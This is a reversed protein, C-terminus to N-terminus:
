TDRKIDAPVYPRIERFQRQLSSIDIFEKAIQGLYNRAQKDKRRKLIPIVRRFFEEYEALRLHTYFIKRELILQPRNLNMKEIMYKAAIYQSEIEGASSVTFIDTYDVESPDAYSPNSFDEIPENPWDNGKFTNCIPCAYFLNKIDNELERFKKKPRYHEVHFNRTGGFCSEHIACYVCQFFGEKALIEKWDSYMGAEPQRSDEKPIRKWKM